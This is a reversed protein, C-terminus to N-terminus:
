ESRWALCIGSGAGALGLLAKSVSGKFYKSLNAALAGFEVSARPVAECRGACQLVM